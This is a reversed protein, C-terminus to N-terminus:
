AVAGRMVRSRLARYEDILRRHHADRLRHFALREDHLQHIASLALSRYVDAEVLAVVLLDEDSLMLPDPAPAPTLTWTIETWEPALSM